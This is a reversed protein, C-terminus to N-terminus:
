AYCSSSGWFLVPSVKAKAAAFEILEEPDIPLIEPENELDKRRDAPFVKQM